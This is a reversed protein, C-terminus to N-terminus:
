AVVAVVAVKAAAALSEGGTSEDADLNAVCRHRIRHGRRPTRAYTM